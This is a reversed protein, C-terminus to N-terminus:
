LHVLCVHKARPARHVIPACLQVPQVASIKDDVVIQFTFFTSSPSFGRFALFLLPCDAVYVFFKSFRIYQRVFALKRQTPTRLRQVCVFQSVSQSRPM